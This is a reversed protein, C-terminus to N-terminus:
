VVSKRDAPDVAPDPGPTTPPPDGPGAGILLSATRALSLRASGSLGTSLRASLGRLTAAAMLHGTAHDLAQVPLPVPRDAGRWAQGAEAIGCAMQVLSDFGRRGAWPGTWGWACLSVDLLGPRLSRRRAQDYGLDDLAGPRYGHVLVDCGALLAEFAQRDDASRLDLRTCRKGLTVEPIIAPEDWDPPDVRLVDAGLGALLRTAIPGALVRTLDLVRLGALPRGPEPRWGTSRAHPSVPDAEGAILPEGTAARGQPHDRWADLPRMRAACGGARVVATELEDGAWAAVRETVAERTPACGLVALAAARHHPANTHLRIWGDACRYDGAIADWIAPLSWGEPQLTSQFWHAALGRDVSIQPRPHGAVSLLDAAALGVAAVSVSALENTAFRSALRNSGTWRLADAGPAPLDLAALCAALLGAEVSTAGHDAADTTVRATRATRATRDTPSISAGTSAGTSAKASPDAAAGASRPAM